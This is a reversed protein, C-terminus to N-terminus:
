QGGAWAIAKDYMEGIELERDDEIGFEAKLYQKMEPKTIGNGMAIAFFRKAQGESVKRGGSTRPAPPKASPNPQRTQQVAAPRNVPADMTPTDPVWGCYHCGDSEMSEGCELCPKVTAPPPASAQSKRQPMAAPAPAQQQGEDGEVQHEMDELDQTFIDSAATVTLTADIQARKKAMKLVTNAVDAVEQRVQMESYNNRQGKRWKIRRREADTEGYEESCAASRWKYKSEDSSCEGIGSGLYTNTPAHTVHATVRYRACDPTSLDLVEPNVALQFTMLLQESGAKYLTPKPTGPITGYHTDLKMISRYIQQVLQVRQSVVEPSNWLAPSRQIELRPPQAPIIEQTAM